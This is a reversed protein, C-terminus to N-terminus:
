KRDIMEFDTSKNLFKLITSEKLVINWYIHYTINQIKYNKINQIINKFITCEQMQLHRMFAYVDM